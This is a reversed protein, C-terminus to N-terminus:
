RLFYNAVSQNLLNEQKIKRLTTQIYKETTDSELKCIIEHLIPICRSTYIKGEKDYKGLSFKVTADEPWAKGIATLWDAFFQPTLDAADNGVLQNKADDAAAILEMLFKEFLTPAMGTDTCYPHFMEKMGSETTEEYKKRIAKGFKGSAPTSVQIAKHIKLAQEMAEKYKDFLKNQQHPQIRGSNWRKLDLYKGGAYRVRESFYKQKDKGKIGIKKCLSKLYAASYARKSIVHGM